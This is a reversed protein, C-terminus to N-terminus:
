QLAYNERSVATKICLFMVTLSPTGTLQLFLREFRKNMGASM